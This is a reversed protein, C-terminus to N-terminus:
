SFKEYLQYTLLPNPLERFYLKCLSGVCHIDQIYVDKTLDPIQESDFEHRLKQINSAIGSLRYIGDVVGHKEIFETCSKLVAAGIEPGWVHRLRRQPPLLSGDPDSVTPRSPQRTKARPQDPSPVKDNGLSVCESPFALRPTKKQPPMDIGCQCLTALRWGHSPLGCNIKTTLLPQSGPSHALLM